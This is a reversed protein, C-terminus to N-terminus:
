LWRILLRGLASLAAHFEYVLWARGMQKSPVRVATKVSMYEHCSLESYWIYPSPPKAPIPFDVIALVTACSACLRPKSPALKKNELFSSSRLDAFSKKPVMAYWNNSYLWSITRRIPSARSRLGSALLFCSRSWSRSKIMWGRWLQSCADLDVMRMTMSARSSHSSYSAPRSKDSRRWSIRLTGFINNAVRGSRWIRLM